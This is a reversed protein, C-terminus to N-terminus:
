CPGWASLVILIDDVGVVGDGDVDAACDECPGFAGILDLIDDVGVFGDGTIDAACTQCEEDISNGGGDMHAGDVQELSNGCISTGSMGALWSEFFYAGGGEAASNERIQCNEITPESARSFFGGGRDSTENDEFTCNVFHSNSPVDPDDAGVCAVGGGDRGATNGRFTCDIVTAYTGYANAMGGGDGNVSNGEFLCNSISPYCPGGDTGSGYVCVGGGSGLPNSIQTNGLFSCREIVPSSSSRIFMGGGVNYTVNGVFECDEITADSFGHCTMGGGWSATNGEFRCREITPMAAYLLYMGGGHGEADNAEFVCDSFTAQGGVLCAGAGGWCANSRFECNRITPSTSGIYIGGGCPVVGFVPDTILEGTGHGIRFGDLVSGPGEESALRVVPGDLGAADITTEAAGAGIVLIAKGLFDIREHYFGPGVEVTDGPLADEIAAQITEYQSPVELVDASLTSAISLSACIGCVFHTKM